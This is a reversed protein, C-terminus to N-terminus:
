SIRVQDVFKEVETQLMTSQQALEGSASLIENAANGSEEAASSVVSINSSVEDTGRAAEEVNRAIEQTAASQEEIASAIGSMSQDISAIISNIRTIAEVADGTAGQIGNIQASIEETVKATQNALNKVESAVVAFGEGAEGARAAEITAPIM